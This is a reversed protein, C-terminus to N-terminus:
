AKALSSPTAFGPTREPALAGDARRARRIAWGCCTMAIIMYLWTSPEPVASVSFPALVIYRYGAPGTRVFPSALMTQVQSDTLAYDQPALFKDWSPASSNMLGGNTHQLGLNHGIEHALIAASALWGRPIDQATVAPMPYYCEYGREATCTEYDNYAPRVQLTEQSKTSVTVGNDNFKALAITGPEAYSDIYFVPIVLSNTMGAAGVLADIAAGDIGTERAYITQPTPGLWLIDIGMGATRTLISPQDFITYLFDLPRPQVQGAHALGSSIAALSVGLAIAAGAIAKRFKV